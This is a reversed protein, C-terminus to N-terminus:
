SDPKPHGHQFSPKPKRSVKVVKEPQGARILQGRARLYYSRRGENMDRNNSLDGDPKGELTLRHAYCFSEIDAWVLTQDIGRKGLQGFVAQYADALRQPTIPEEAM